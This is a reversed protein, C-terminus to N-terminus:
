VFYEKSRKLRNVRNQKETIDNEVVFARVPAGGGQAGGSSGSMGNMSPAEPILSTGGGAKNIESLIPTFMKTSNANIVAEGPALLSPVSDIAGPGNGPVIGGRAAKYQQSAIIGIQAAGLAGAIAAYVAGTAAGIIPVAAGSSFANIVAQATGIIANILALKKARAFADMDAKKERERKKEALRENAADYEAQSIQRNALANALFESEAAEQEEFNEKQKEARADLIAGIAETVTQTLETAFDAVAKLKEPDTLKDWDEVATKLVDTAFRNVSESFSNFSENIADFDGGTFSADIIARIGSFTEKVLDGFARMREARAEDEEKIKDANAIQAETAANDTDVVMQSYDQQATELKSYTDEKSALYAEDNEALKLQMEKDIIEIEISSQTKSRLIEAENKVIDDKRKKEADLIMNISEVSYQGTLKISELQAKTAAELNKGFEFKGLEQNIKELRNQADILGNVADSADKFSKAKEDTAKKDKDSQEVYRKGSLTIEDIQGKIQLQTAGLGTLARETTRIIKENETLTVDLDEYRDRLQALNVREGDFTSEYQDKAVKVFGYRKTIDNLAKGLEQQADLQRNILDTTYKESREQRVRLTQFAIYEKVAANLQTQFAEEDSLNQLTTGYQKNIQSILDRREKSNKNSEKLQYILGVFATSEQAISKRAADDAEKKAKQLAVAKKTEENRKKEAAEAEASKSAFLAFAGVLAGIGTVLLLVPNANMVLNLARMRIAALGSANAQGTQAAAMATHAATARVILANTVRLGENYVDLAGGIVKSAGEVQAFTQAIKEVGEGSVGILALGGAVDTLGGALGRVSAGFQEANLAENELDIQSLATNVVQLQQQLERYEQSGIAAGALAQNLAEQADTLDNITNLTANLNTNLQGLTQGSNNRIDLNIVVSSAM